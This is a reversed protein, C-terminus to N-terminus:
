VRHKKLLSKLMCNLYILEIKRKIPAKKIIKKNKNYLYKFYDINNSKGFYLEKKSLECKGKEYKLINYYIKKDLLVIETKLNYGLKYMFKRMLYHDSNTQLIVKDPMKKISDQIINKITHFGMGTIILTDFKSEIGKLGDSVITKIPYNFKLINNKAGSIANKSIDSAIINNSINNKYLYIPVLGHDSGVDVVVSNKEVLSAITKIRKSFM